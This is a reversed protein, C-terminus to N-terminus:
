SSCLIYLCFCVKPLMEFNAGARSSRMSSRAIHAAAEVTSSVLSFDSGHRSGISPTFGAKGHLSVEQSSPKEQEKQPINKQVLKPSPQNKLKNQNLLKQVRRKELSERSKSRRHHSKPTLLNVDHRSISHKLGDTLGSAIISLHVKLSREASDLLWRCFFFM